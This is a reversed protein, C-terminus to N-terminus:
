LFVYKGPNKASFGRGHGLMSRQKHFSLSSQQNLIYLLKLFDFVTITKGIDDNTYVLQQRAEDKELLLQTGNQNLQFLGTTFLQMIERAYNEDAFEINGTRAYVSATSQGSHYSLMIAMMPSYSVEKLVDRYNGFANRIQNIWVSALSLLL